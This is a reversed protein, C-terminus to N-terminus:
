NKSDSRMLCNAYYTVTGPWDSFVGRVGVDNALVHLVQLMQGESTMATAIPAYLWNKEDMPDGAEFTWAIIELGASKAQRAYLSPVIEGADHLALLM